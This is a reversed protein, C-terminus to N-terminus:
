PLPRMICLGRRNKLTGFVVARFGCWRYLRRLGADGQGKYVSLVSFLPLILRNTPKAHNKRPPKARSKATPM